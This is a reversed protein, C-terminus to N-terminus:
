ELIEGVIELGEAVNGSEFMELEACEELWKANKQLANASISQYGRGYRYGRVTQFEKKWSQESQGTKPNHEPTHKVIVMYVAGAPMRYAILAKDEITALVLGERWGQNAWFGVQEGADVKRRATRYRKIAATAEDQYETYGTGEQWEHWVNFYFDAGNMFKKGYMKKQKDTIEYRGEQRYLPKRVDVGFAFLHYKYSNYKCQIKVIQVDDGLAAFLKKAKTKYQARNSNVVGERYEANPIINLM